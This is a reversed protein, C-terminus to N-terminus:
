HIRENNNYSAPAVPLQIRSRTGQWISDKQNLPKIIIKGEHSDIIRKVIALGLGTGKAKTTFFPEFVKETLCPDIAPGNNDIDVLLRTGVETMMINTAVKVCPSQNETSEAAQIANVIINQLAQRLKVPDAYVTPLNPQFSIDLAVGKEKALKQQTLTVLEVLKNLDLWDPKFQDPRSYTMLDELIAEMYRVQDLSIASLEDQEKRAYIQLAMKISSLPNRLDHAIMNVVKGVAALKEHQIRERMQREVEGALRKEETIDQKVAVYYLAQGEINKVPSIRAREWYMEGNKKRNHFEGRWERGDQLALWLAQYSDEPMEGSQLFKPTRGMVEDIGYGTLECFVPNVYVIRGSVDTIMVSNQSQEVAHSLRQLEDKTMQQETVDEGVFTVADAQGQHIRSFTSTWSLIHIEGSQSQVVGEARPQDTGQELAQTLAKAAQPQLEKPTFTKVWNKGIVEERRYGVMNLFFDNCFVVRGEANVSVAALQINELIHRFQQEYRQKQRLIRAQLRYRSFVVALLLLLALAAIYLWLYRDTFAIRALNMRQEPFVSIITWNGNSATDTQTFTFFSEGLQLQGTHERNILGLVQPDVAGEPNFSFASESSSAPQIVAIGEPNLIFLHQIFTPSITLLKDILQRAKYNLVVVGTRQQDRGFVSAGVRITPNLPQQIKGGEVNLDMPSIYVKDPALEVSRQFYYRRSKNQLHQEDVAHIRNDVNNVRVIERGSTDIFRVQDYSSQNSALQIFYDTLNAKFQAAPADAQKGAMYSLLKADSSMSSLSDDLVEEILEVIVRENHLAYQQENHVSLFYHVLMLGLIAMWGPILWLLLETYFQRQKVFHRPAGLEDM